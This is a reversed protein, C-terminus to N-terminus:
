KTSETQSIALYGSVAALFLSSHLQSGAWVSDKRPLAKALDDVGDFIANLYLHPVEV